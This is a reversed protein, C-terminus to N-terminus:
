SDSGDAVVKKKRRKTSIPKDSSSSQEIELTTPEVVSESEAKRAALPDAPRTGEPRRLLTDRIAEPSSDGAYKEVLAQQEVEAKELAAGRLKEQDFITKVFRVAQDMGNIKGTIQVIQNSVNSQLNKVLMVCQMIRKKGESAQPLDIKSEKLDRDVFGAQAEIQQALVQLMIKSAELGIKERKAAEFLDELKSGVNNLTDLRTDVVISM